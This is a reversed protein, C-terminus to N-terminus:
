FGGGHGGGAQEVGEGMVEVGVHPRRPDNTEFSLEGTYENAAPPTFILPIYGTKGPEITVEEIYTTFVSGDGDIDGIDEIVLDKSGGNVIHVLKQLTEGVEVAGLSIAQFEGTEPDVVLDSEPDTEDLNAADFPRASVASMTDDDNVYKASVAVQMDFDALVQATVAKDERSLGLNIEYDTVYISSGAQVTRAERFVENGDVDKGVVIVDGDDDSTNLIGLMTDGDDKLFVLWQQGPESIANYFGLGERNQILAAFGIRASADQAEVGIAFVGSVGPLIRPAVDVLTEGVALEQENEYVGGDETVARIAVTTPESGLNAIILGTKRIDDEEDSNEVVPAYAKDTLNQTDIAAAGGSQEGDSTTFLYSIQPKTWATGQGGAEPSTQIKVREIGPLGQPSGAISALTAVIKEKPGLTRESLVTEQDNEDIGIFTMDVAADHANYVVFGTAWGDTTPTHPAYAVHAAETTTQAQVANIAAELKGPIRFAYTGCIDERLTAFIVSAAAQGILGSPTGFIAAYPGLEVDVDDILNGDSDYGEWVGQVAESESLNAVSITTSWRWSVEDGEPPDTEPTHAFIVDASASPVAWEVIRWQSPGFVSAAGLFSFACLLALSMLVAKSSRLARWAIRRGSMRSFTCGKRSGRVRCAQQRESPCVSRGSGESDRTSAFELRNTGKM